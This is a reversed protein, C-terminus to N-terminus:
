SKVGVHEHMLAVSARRNVRINNTRRCCGNTHRYEVGAHDLAFTLVRAIDDSLNSFGYSLYAYRGTQNIFSCGDTRICGKIFRWPASAILAWQWLEPTIARRHKKGAGHQPILCPLHAHHVSLYRGGKFSVVDVRNRPFTRELLARCEEIIDPYRSDLFIRLRYTRELPSICGDGLYMAFLEAYDDVSFHMPKMAEGCRPCAQTPAKRVYTPQRWDMITRRPIGIRRSIECDNVGLGVLRLAEAKLEPPHVSRAHRLFARTHTV